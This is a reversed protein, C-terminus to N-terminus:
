YTGGDVSMCTIEPSNQSESVTTDSPLATIKKATFASQVARFWCIDSESIKRISKSDILETKQNLPNISSKEEPSVPVIMSLNRGSDPNLELCSGGNSPRLNGSSDLQELKNFSFNRSTIYKNDQIVRDELFNFDYMFHSHIGDVPEVSLVCEEFWKEPRDYFPYTTWHDADETQFPRLNEMTDTFEFYERFHGESKQFVNANLESMSADQVSDTKSLDEFSGGSNRRPKIKGKRTMPEIPCDMATSVISSSTSEVAEILNEYGEGVVDDIKTVLTGINTENEMTIIGEPHEGTGNVKTVMSDIEPKPEAKSNSNSPIISGESSEVAWILDGCDEGLTDSVWASLANVTPSSKASEIPGNKKL